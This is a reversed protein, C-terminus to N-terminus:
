SSSSTESEGPTIGSAKQYDEVLADLQKINLTRVPAGQAEFFRYHAEDREVTNTIRAALIAV